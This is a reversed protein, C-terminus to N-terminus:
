AIQFLGNNIQLDAGVGFPTITAKWEHEGAALQRFRLYATACGETLGANIVTQSAEEVLEGDRFLKLHYGATSAGSAGMELPLTLSIIADADNHSTPAKAVEIIDIEEESSKETTPFNKPKNGKAEEAETKAAEAEKKAEEAKVLAGSEASLDTPVWHTPDESPNTAGTVGKQNIYVGEGALQNAPAEVVDFTYDYKKLGAPIEPPGACCVAAYLVGDAPIDKFISSGTRGEMRQFSLFVGAGNFWAVTVAFDPPAEPASVMKFKVVTGEAGKFQYLDFFPTTEKESEEVNKLQGTNPTDMGGSIDGEGHATFSTSIGLINVRGETLKVVDGVKYTSGFVFEALWEMSIASSTEIIHEISSIITEIVKTELHFTELKATIEKIITTTSSHETIGHELLELIEKTQTETLGEAELITKTEIIIKEVSFGRVWETGNWIEYVIRTEGFFPPGWPVTPPTQPFSIPTSFPISSSPM